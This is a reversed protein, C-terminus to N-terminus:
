EREQLETREEEREEGKRSSPPLVKRFVISRVCSKSDALKWAQTSNRGLYINEM